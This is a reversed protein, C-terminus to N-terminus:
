RVRSIADPYSRYFWMDSQFHSPSTGVLKRFVRAFHSPNKFGAEIGIDIISRERDGLQTKAFDIRKAMVYRHLTTGTSNRFLDSFYHASFGAITSIRSLSLDECLNVDIYDLIRQLKHGPLRGKDVVSFLSHDVFESFNSENLVSM